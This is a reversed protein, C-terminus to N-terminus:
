SIRWALISSHAAMEEELPGEQGLSRVWTESTEEMPEEGGRWRPNNVKLDNYPCLPSSLAESVACLSSPHGLAEKWLGVAKGALAPMMTKTNEASLCWSKFAEVALCSVTEDCLQFRRHVVWYLNITCWWGIYLLLCSVKTTLIESSFGAIAPDM